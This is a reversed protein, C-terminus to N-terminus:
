CGALALFVILMLLWFLINRMVTTRKRAPMTFLVVGILLCFTYGRPTRRLAANGCHGTALSWHFFFALLLFDVFFIGREDGKQLPSFLPIQGQDRKLRGGTV